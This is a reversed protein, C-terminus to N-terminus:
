RLGCSVWRGSAATTEASAVLSAADSSTEDPM